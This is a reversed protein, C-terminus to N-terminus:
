YVKEKKHKECYKPCLSRDQECTLGSREWRRKLNRRDIRDQIERREIEEEDESIEESGDNEIEKEVDKFFCDICLKNGQASVYKPSLINSCERCRGYSKKM